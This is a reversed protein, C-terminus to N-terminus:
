NMIFEVKKKLTDDLINDKEKMMWGKPNVCERGKKLLINLNKSYGVRPSNDISPM